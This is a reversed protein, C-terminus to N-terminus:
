TCCVSVLVGSCSVAFDICVACVIVFVHLCVHVCWLCAHVCPRWSDNTAIATIIVRCATLPGESKKKPKAQSADDDIMVKVRKTYWAKRLAPTMGRAQHSGQICRQTSRIWAFQMWLRMYM